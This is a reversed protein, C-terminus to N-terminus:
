RLYKAILQMASHLCKRLEKLRTKCSREPEVELSGVLPRTGFV